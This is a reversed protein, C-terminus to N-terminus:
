ATPTPGFSAPGIIGVFAIVMGAVGALGDQGSVGSNPLNVDGIKSLDTVNLSGNGIAVVDPARKTFNFIFAADASGTALALAAAGALLTRIFRQM